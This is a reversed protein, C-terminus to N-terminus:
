RPDATRAAAELTGGPDSASKIADDKSPQDADCEGGSSLSYFLQKTNAETHERFEHNIPDRVKRTFRWQGRHHCLLAV